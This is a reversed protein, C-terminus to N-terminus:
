EKNESRENMKESWKNLVKMIPHDATIMIDGLAKIDDSIEEIIEDYTMDKWHPPFKKDM